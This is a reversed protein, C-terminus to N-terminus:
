YTYKQLVTYDKESGKASFRRIEAWGSITNSYVFLHKLYVENCAEVVIDDKPTTVGDGAVEKIANTYDTLGYLGSQGPNLITIDGVARYYAQDITPNNQKNCSSFAASLLVLGMLAVAIKIAKKM